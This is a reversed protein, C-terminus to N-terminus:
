FLGASTFNSMVAPITVAESPVGGRLFDNDVKAARNRRTMGKFNELYYSTVKFDERAKNQPDIYNQLQQTVSAALSPDDIELFLTSWRKWSTETQEPDLNIDWFNDFLTIVEIFSFNKIILHNRLFVGLLLNM